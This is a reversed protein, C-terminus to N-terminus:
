RARNRSGSALAARLIQESGLWSPVLIFLIVTQAAQSGGSRKMVLATALIVAGWLIAHAVLLWAQKPGSLGRAARVESAYFRALWSRGKAHEAALEGASGLKAVAATFAQEDSMGEARARDIECYLHDSLEAVSAASRCRTAYVTESWARVERELEFM